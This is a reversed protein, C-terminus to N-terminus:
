LASIVKATPVNNSTLLIAGVQGIDPSQVILTGNRTKGNVPVGERNSTVIVVDTGDLTALYDERQTVCVVVDVDQEEFYDLYRAILSRTAYVSVSYIGVKKKGAYVVQPSGDNEIDHIDVSVVKAGKREYLNRVDSVFVGSEIVEEPRPLLSLIGLGISDAVTPKGSVEDDTTKPVSLKIPEQASGSKSGDASEADAEEAADVASNESFDDSSSLEDGDAHASSSGEAQDDSSTAGDQTRDPAAEGDRAASRAPLDSEEDEPEVVGSYVITSYGDMRGAADDVFSAAVSWSRGTTFYGTLVVVLLVLLVAFVILAIKERTRIDM